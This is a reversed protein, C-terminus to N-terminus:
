EYPSIGIGLTKEETVVLTVGINCFPYQEIPDYDTEISELSMGTPLDSIIQDIVLKRLSESDTLGAYSTVGEVSEPQSEDLVTLEFGLVCQKPNPNEGGSRAVPAFIIYPCDTDEPPNRPDVGEYVKLGQGYTTICWSDIPSATKVGTSFGRTLTNIDM